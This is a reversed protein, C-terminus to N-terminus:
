QSRRRTMITQSIPRASTITERGNTSVTGPSTKAENMRSSSVMSHVGALSADIGWRTGRDWRVEALENDSAAAYPVKGIAEAIKAPRAVTAAHNAALPHVEASCRM